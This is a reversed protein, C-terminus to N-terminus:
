RTNKRNKQEHQLQDIRTQIAARISKNSVETEPLSKLLWKYTQVLTLKM